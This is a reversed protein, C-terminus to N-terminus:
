QEGLVTLLLCLADVDTLDSRVRPPENRRPVDDYAYTTALNISIRLNFEIGM